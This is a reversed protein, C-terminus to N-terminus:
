RVAPSFYQSIQIPVVLPIDELSVSSNLLDILEFRMRSFLFYLSIAM